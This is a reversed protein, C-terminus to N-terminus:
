SGTRQEFPTTASPKVGEFWPLQPNATSNEGALLAATGVVQDQARHLALAAPVHTFDGWTGAPYCNSEKPQQKILCVRSTQSVDYTGAQGGQGEMAYNHRRTLRRGQDGIM